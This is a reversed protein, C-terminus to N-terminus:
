HIQERPPSQRISGNLVSVECRWRREIAGVDIGVLDNGLLKQLADLAGAVAIKQEEVPPLRRGAIRNRLEHQVIRPILLACIRTAPLFKPHPDLRSCAAQASLSKPKRQTIAGVNASMKKEFAPLFPM